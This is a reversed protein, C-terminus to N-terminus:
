AAEGKMLRPLQGLEGGAQRMFFRRLPGIRDVIGLGLDRALRVPAIDNSFLRNLSDTAAGLVFSDFRRWREYRQLVDETGFDLGLRAADLLVEAFAAADKLGLNLGQGAIPHIGHAADGVLAFRPRVYSRALHFRLPYSWRPGNAELPGLHEGFRRAIEATYEHVPLAMIRPALESRETWVLASRNGTMPLIAFPGSPQFHEYAVGRHPRAHTVVTVIGHQDYEWSVTDIGMAERLQSTRGDAAVVVRAAIEDGNGLTVTAHDRSVSIGKAQVGSLLNLNATVDAGKFLGARIHRNEVMFGLPEGVEGHDFHLSFPSAARDLSADTVLIDHIPQAQPELHQWVRLAHYMRVTSYNLASVRGDFSAATVQARSLPDALTVKLGGQALALAATLGVMGGGAVFIDTEKRTGAM